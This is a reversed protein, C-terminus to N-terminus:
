LAIREKDSKKYLAFQEKDSKKYLAFSRFLSHGVRCFGPGGAVGKRCNKPAHWKKFLHEEVGREKFIINNESEKMMPQM